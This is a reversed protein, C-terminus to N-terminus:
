KGRDGKGDWAVHAYTWSDWKARETMEGGRWGVAAALAIISLVLLGRLTIM